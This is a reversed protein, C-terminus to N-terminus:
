GHRLAEALAHKVLQSFEQDSYAYYRYYLPAPLKVSVRGCREVHLRGPVHGNSLARAVIMSMDAGPSRGALTGITASMDRDILLPRTPLISSACRNRPCRVALVPGEASSVPGCTFFGCEACADQFLEAVQEPRLHIQAADALPRGPELRALLKRLAPRGRVHRLLEGGSKLQALDGLCVNSRLGVNSNM